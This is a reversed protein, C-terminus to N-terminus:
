VIRSGYPGIDSPGNTGSSDRTDMASVVAGSADEPNGIGVLRRTKPDDLESTAEQLATRAARLAASAPKLLGDLSPDLHHGLDALVRTDVGDPHAGIAQDRVTALSVLHGDPGIVVEM